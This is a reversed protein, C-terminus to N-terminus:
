CFALRIRTRSRIDICSSLIGSARQHYLRAPTSYTLGAHWEACSTTRWRLQSGRARMRAEVITIRIMSICVPREDLAGDM